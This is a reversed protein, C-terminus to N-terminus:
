PRLKWGVLVGLGFCWAAAIDPKDRAYDRLLSYLDKAPEAVFHTGYERAASGASEAATHAASSLKEKANDSFESFKGTETAAHQDSMNM